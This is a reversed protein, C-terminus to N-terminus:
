ARRGSLSQVRTLATREDVHNVAQAQLLNLLYNGTAKYSHKECIWERASLQMAEIVPRPTGALCEVNKIFDEKTNAVILGAEGYTKEYVEHFLSNTIVIKGMAAAEFSTVGFSGYPKGNQEPKFLEVYVDCQKIRELNEDHNVQAADCLFLCDIDSMMDVIVDTGKKEANSPFHAFVVQSNDSQHYQIKDTDVAAAIYTVNKGGLSYFEPSDILTREVYPNFVDNMKEPAQRYKTGTHLVWLRKGLDKVLQLLHADTHGVIIVDANRCQDVMTMRSVVLSQDSYCFPHPTTQLSIADIGVSRLAKAQEHCFNSYDNYSIYVVKM